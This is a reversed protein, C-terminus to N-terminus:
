GSYAQRMLEAMSPGKPATLKIEEAESNALKKIDDTLEHLIDEPDHHIRWLRIADDCVKRAYEKCWKAAEKPTAGIAVAYPLMNVRPGIWSTLNLLWDPDPKADSPDGSFGAALLIKDVRRLDRKFVLMSSWKTCLIRVIRKLSVVAESEIDTQKAATLLRDCEGMDHLNIRDKITFRGVKM